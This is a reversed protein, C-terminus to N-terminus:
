AHSIEAAALEHFMPMEIAHCRIYTMIYRQIFTTDYHRLEDVDAWRLLSFLITYHFHPTFHRIHRKWISLIITALRTAAYYYPTYFLYVYCRAIWAPEADNRERTIAEFFFFFLEECKEAPSSSFLLARAGVIPAFLAYFESIAYPMYIMM